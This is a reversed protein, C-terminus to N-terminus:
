IFDIKISTYKIMEDDSGDDYFDGRSVQAGYQSATTVVHIYPFYEHDPEIFANISHSINGNMYTAINNNSSGTKVTVTGVWVSDTADWLKVKVEGTASGNIGGLLSGKYSGSFIVKASKATTGKAIFRQGVYCYADAYGYGATWTKSQAYKYYPSYATRYQAYGSNSGDGWGDDGTTLTTDTGINVTVPNAMTSISGESSSFTEELHKAEYEELEKIRNLNTTLAKKTLEPDPTENQQDNYKVIDEISTIENVIQNNGAFSATNSMALLMIVTILVCLVRKKL